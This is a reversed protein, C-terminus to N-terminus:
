SLNMGNDLQLLPLQGFELWAAKEEKFKPWEQMSLRVDEFQVHAHALMMRIGEGRGYIGFYFFKM